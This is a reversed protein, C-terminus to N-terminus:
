PCTPVDVPLRYPSATQSQLVRGFRGADDSLLAECFGVGDTSPFTRADVLVWEGVPYRNLQLTVDTNIMSVGGPGWEWGVAAALDSLTAVAQLPTLPHGLVVPQRARAWMVGPGPTETDGVISRLEVADCNFGPRPYVFEGADPDVAVVSRPPVGVPGRGVVPGAPERSPDAALWSSTARALQIDGDWLEADLVAVRRGARRLVARTRLPGVPVPRWLEVTLRALRLGAPAAQEVTWGLLGTVAGGHQMGADWPGRTLETPLLAVSGDRSGSRSDSGHPDPLFLAAPLAVAGTTPTM